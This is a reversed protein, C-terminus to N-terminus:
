IKVVLRRHKGKTKRKNKKKKGVKAEFIADCAIRLWVWGRFIAIQEVDSQIGDKKQKNKVKKKKQCM